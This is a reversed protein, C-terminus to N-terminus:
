GSLPNIPFPPSNSICCDPTLVLKLFLIDVVTFSVLKFVACFDFDSRRLLNDMGCSQSIPNM